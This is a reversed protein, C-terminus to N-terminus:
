KHPLMKKILLAWSIILLVGGIPTLPGLFKFEMGHLEKTALIYISLSFLITGILMFRAILNLDKQHVALLGLFLFAMGHYIQYRVGTEFSNLAKENIIAKLAHAGFAGFIIGLTVLIAGTLIYKKNM